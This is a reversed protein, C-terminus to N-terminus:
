ARLSELWVQNRLPHEMHLTLQTLLSTAVLLLLHNDMALLDEWALRHRTQGTSLDPIDQSRNHNCALHDPIHEVVKNSGASHRIQVEGLTMPKGLMIANEEVELLPHQPAAKHPLYM